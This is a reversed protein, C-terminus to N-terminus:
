AANGECSLAFPCEHNVVCNNFILGCAYDVMCNRGRGGGAVDTLVSDDVERNTASHFALEEPEVEYGHEKAFAVVAEMQAAPADEAQAIKAEIQSALAEFAAALEKSDKLDEIFKKTDKM